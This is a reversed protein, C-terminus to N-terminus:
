SGETVLYNSDESILKESEETVLKRSEEFVKNYVINLAAAWRNVDEFTFVSLHYWNRQRFNTDTIKALREINNEVKQLLEATLFDGRKMEINDTEVIFIYQFAAMSSNISTVIGFDDSLQIETINSYVESTDTNAYYMMDMWTDISVTSVSNMLNTYEIISHSSTELVNAQGGAVDELIDEYLDDPFELYITKGSLDDGIQINRREGTSIFPSDIKLKADITNITSIIDNMDSYGFKDQSTWNQRLSM